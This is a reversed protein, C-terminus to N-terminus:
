SELSVAPRYELDASAQAERQHWTRESRASHMAGKTHTSFMNVGKSVGDRWCFDAVPKRVADEGTTSLRSSM